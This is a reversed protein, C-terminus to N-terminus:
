MSKELVGMKSLIGTQKDKYIRYPVSIVLPLLMVPGVVNTFTTFGYKVINLLGFSSGFTCMFIFALAILFKRLFPSSGKWMRGIPAEFRDSVTFLLSVGSSLMAAIALAAYLSQAIRGSHSLTQLAWLIPITEQTIGPMGAAFIITFIMTGFCCLCSSILSEVIVDWRTKIVGISAPVCAEYAVMFFVVIMIMQYWAQPGTFGFEHYSVRSQVFALAKPWAPGLCVAGIYACIGLICITLFSGTARLLKAGWLCLALISACFLIAGLTLNIGWTTNLIASVASIQASLSILVIVVVQIEKFTGFFAQLYKNRYITNYAERYTKPRYIRNIEFLLMSFVFMLLGAILPGLFVGIWGKTLFYSVTQAGSAFGPGVYTSFMVAAISAPGLIKLKNSM